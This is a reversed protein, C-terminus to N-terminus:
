IKDAHAEQSTKSKECSLHGVFHLIYFLATSAEPNKEQKLWVM